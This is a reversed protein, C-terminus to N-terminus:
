GASLWSRAGFAFPRVEPQRWHEVRALDGSNHDIQDGVLGSHADHDVAGTDLV